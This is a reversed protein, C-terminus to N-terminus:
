RRDENEREGIKELMKQCLEKEQYFIRLGNETIEANPYLVRSLPNDPIERSIIKGNTYEIPRCSDLLRGEELIATDHRFLLEYRDGIGCVHYLLDNVRFIDGVRYKLDKAM